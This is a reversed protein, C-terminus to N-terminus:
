FIRRKTGKSLFIRGVKEATFSVRDCHKARKKSLPAWSNLPSADGGEYLCFFNYTATIIFAEAIVYGM